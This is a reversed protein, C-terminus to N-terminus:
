LARSAYSALRAPHAGPKADLIYVNCQATPSIALAVGIAGDGAVALRVPCEQGALFVRLTERGLQSGPFGITNAANDTGPTAVAYARNRVVIGICLEAPNIKM